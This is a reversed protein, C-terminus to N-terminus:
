LLMSLNPVGLSAQDVMIRRRAIVFSDGRRRLLDERSCSVFDYQPSDWRSRLLLLSSTAEYEGATGTEHLRLNTILRRTRSPPDDAYAHGSDVFRRVRFEMSSRDEDFHVMVPDFGAGQTRMTTRRVPATYALDDALQGLWAKLDGGDLLHAEEILFDMVENYEPAGYRIRETM